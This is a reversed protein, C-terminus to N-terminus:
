SWILAQAEGGGSHRKFEVVTETCGVRSKNLKLLNYVKWTYQTNIQFLYSQKPSGLHSLPLFDMQLATSVPSAAKIGPQSTGQLLFHCGVGTNKGPFDWPCLLRTPHLVHSRLSNSVVSCVCVCLETKYTFM